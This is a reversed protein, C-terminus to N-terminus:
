ARTEPIAFGLVPRRMRNSRSADSSKWAVISDSRRVRPQLARAIGIKDEVVKTGAANVRTGRAPEITHSGSM